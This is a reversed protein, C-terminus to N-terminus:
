FRRTIRLYTGNFAFESDQYLRRYLELGFRLQLKNFTSQFEARSTLLDLDINAGRQNLYGAELSVKMRPGIRYVVKGSLNAYWQDVEDAIMRYDRINGNLTLLLSSRFNWNVDLYYRRMRYPIINSDYLDAEIGARAFGVDLRVGYIHQNYYNLTLLDGQNVKPYNQASYNYYLEILRKFLLVSVSFHNNNAGYSYSGPQEYSYDIFITGGDPILGGPIRQIEMYSGRDILIYDFNLQYILAGTVDKVVVSNFDVYAKNLLTVEGDRLVQEENIVQLMGTAGETSHEHRYYRYALNLYGTPIKKTYKLDVGARFDTEEYLDTAELKIRTYELYVKSTLSQFLKHQLSARARKQDWTQVPDELNYLNFNAMLRLHHPLQMSIGELLELRRFSTTGDQDYWNFRSNLNYKRAADLFFSNNLAVRNILNATEHLEAYRYLYNHHSFIFENRDRSGFSKSARAEINEQDMNFKRGTQIEEQDWEQNRYTLTLPLIKNNLSLIGGWQQNSSKVNTLLERNYYSQDYNYFGQLTVPKNNFLITKLDLKLLNRVESRDPVTIYQEDRLEPSYAGGLDMLLIDKDWLYSSTNLKLGSLLYTSRQDEDVENFSSKLQRYQGELDLEGSINRLHWIGLSHQAQSFCLFPSFIFVLLFITRFRKM